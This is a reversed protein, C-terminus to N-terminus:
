PRGQPRDGEARFRQPITTPHEPGIIDRRGFPMDGMYDGNRFPRTFASQFIAQLQMTMLPVPSGAELNEISQVWVDEGPQATFGATTESWWLISGKDLIWVGDLRHEPETDQALPAM